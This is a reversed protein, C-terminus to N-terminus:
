FPFLVKVWDDRSEIVEGLKARKPVGAISIAYTSNIQYNIKPLILYSSKALGAEIPIYIGSFAGMDIRTDTKNDIRGDNSRDVKVSYNFAETDTMTTLFAENNSVLNLQVWTPHHSIVEIGVKLQNAHTPKVGRIIGIIVQTPTEDMMLAVLKNPRALINAYKNVRTGIGHNSEDTVIWVDLTASNIAIASGFTNKSNLTTHLLLREDFTKGDRSVRLGSSIQNAHHVQDCISSIGANVKATKSTAHRPEKRRQRTYNLKTWQEYLITLTEHLQKANTIKSILLSEPIEGRDSTNICIAIQKELDDLDWYRCHENLEVNRIRKAPADKECDIFFLHTKELYRQSLDARTLWTSLLRSAIDLHMKHMNANGLQGFM